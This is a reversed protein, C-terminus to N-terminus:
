AHAEEEGTGKVPELHGATRIVIERGGATRCLLERTDAVKVVTLNSLEESTYLGSKTYHTMWDGAEVKVNSGPMFKPARAAVTSPIFGLGALTAFTTSFEDLRPSIEKALSLLEGTATTMEPTNGEQKAWADLATTLVAMEARADAIKASHLEMAPRRVPAKKTSTAAAAKKDAEKKAKEAAKDAKSM